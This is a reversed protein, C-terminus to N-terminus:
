PKLYYMLLIHDSFYIVLVIVEISILFNIITLSYNILTITNITIYCNYYYINTARCSKHFPATSSYVIGWIFNIPAPRLCPKEYWLLGLDKIIGDAYKISYVFMPPLFEGM